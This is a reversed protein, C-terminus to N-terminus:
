KGKTKPRPPAKPHKSTPPVLSHILVKGDSPTNTKQSNTKTEKESM